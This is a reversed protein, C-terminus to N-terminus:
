QPPGSCFNRFQLKQFARTYRSFLTKRVIEHRIHGNCSLGRLAISALYSFFQLSFELRIFAVATASVASDVFSIIMTYLKSSAEARGFSSKSSHTTHPIQSSYLDFTRVFIKPCMFVCALPNTAFWSIGYILKTKLYQQIDQNQM